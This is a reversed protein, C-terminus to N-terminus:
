EMFSGQLKICSQLLRSAEKKGNEILRQYFSRCIENHRIASRACNFLLARIKASGRKTISSKGRVTTGSTYESPTLGIFKCFAKADPFQKLNGFLAVIAHATTVGVGKISSIREVVQKNEEEDSDLQLEQELSSISEQVGALSDKLAQVAVPNPNVRYEFAHLQNKLQGEIKQLSRLASFAEIRKKSKSDPM